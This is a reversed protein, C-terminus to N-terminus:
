LEATEVAIVYIAKCFKPKICDAADCESESMGWQENYIDCFADADEGMGFFPCAGCTKKPIIIEKSM